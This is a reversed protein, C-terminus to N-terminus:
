VPAARKEKARRHFNESQGHGLIPKQSMPFHAVGRDVYRLGDLHM